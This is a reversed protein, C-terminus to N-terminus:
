CLLVINFWFISTAIIDKISVFGYMFPAPLSHQIMDFESLLLHDPYLSGPELFSDM